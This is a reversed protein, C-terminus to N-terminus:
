ATAAPLQPLRVRFAAGGAAAREAVITGGHATVLGRAIALGLGSGGSDASRAYRDFVRDLEEAAIGPGTDTVVLEVASGDGAVAVTVRGGAPTHRLANAVLNELLQRIRVPDVDLPPLAAADATLEVQAEGARPAFAAVVDAALAGLDTPERELRLTGSEATSLLQLDDLLRAMVRTQEILAGLRAEDAAYVGDAIAELNGRVVSLPTRLEHTVDALLGRRQADSAELRATMENFSRALRRVDGPGRAPVRVTYDGGAVRDAAEMVDGIPAVTRRVMRGVAVLALLLVAAAVVGVGVSADGLAATISVAVITTAAVLLVVLLVAVVAVRRM